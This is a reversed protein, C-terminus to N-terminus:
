GDLNFRRKFEDDMDKEMVRQAAELAALAIRTQEVQRTIEEYAPRIQWFYTDLSIKELEWGAALESKGNMNTVSYPWRITGDDNQIHSVWGRFGKEKIVVLDGLAIEDNYIEM